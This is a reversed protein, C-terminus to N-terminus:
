PLPQGESAVIIEYVDTRDLSVSLAAVAESLRKPTQTGLLVVPRAPHALVFAIAVATRDTQERQALGDLTTLLEPRLGEGTLLRGGLLPSWALPVLRDRMARDFTGDRLPELHGVSFQPQTSVIPQQLYSALAEHQDVTFNSVGVHKIKGEGHLDDLVGALDAPHTYLDPRHIQWLDIRDTQLRALSAEVAQRIYEPSSDYPVPPRIGGKSALFMRDRLSPTASLVAGLHEECQGFRVGGHDLGYVDATDILNLGTDLATEILLTNARLDTSVMRWTGLALPGIPIADPGLLRPESHVLQNPPNKIKAM